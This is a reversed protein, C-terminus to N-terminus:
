IRNNKVLDKEGLATMVNWCTICYKMGMEPYIYLPVEILSLVFEGQLAQVPDQAWGFRQERCHGTKSEGPKIIDNVTTSYTSYMVSSTM